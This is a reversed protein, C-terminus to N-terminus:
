SAGFRLVVLECPTFFEKVWICAPPCINAETVVIFPTSDDPATQSDCLAINGARSQIFVTENGTTIQQWEATLAVKETSM